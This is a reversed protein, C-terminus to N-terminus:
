LGTYGSREPQKNQGKSLQTCSQFTMVPDSVIAAMKDDDLLGGIFSAVLLTKTERSMVHGM